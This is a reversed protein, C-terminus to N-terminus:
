ALSHNQDVALGRDYLNVPSSGPGIRFAHRLRKQARFSTGAPLSHLTYIQFRNEGFPSGAARNEPASVVAM